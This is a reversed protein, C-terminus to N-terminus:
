GTRNGLAADAAGDLQELEAITPDLILEHFGHAEFAHITERLASLEGYEPSSLFSHDIVTERPSGNIESKVVVQCRVLRGLKQNLKAAPRIYKAPGPSAPTRM